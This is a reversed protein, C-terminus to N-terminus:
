YISITYKGSCNHNDSNLIYGSDCSCVYSGITNTCAHDCRGNYVACENIDSVSLIYLM